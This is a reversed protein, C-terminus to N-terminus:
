ALSGAVDVAACSALKWFLWVMEPTEAGSAARQDDLERLRGAVEEVDHGHRKHGRRRHLPVAVQGVARREALM